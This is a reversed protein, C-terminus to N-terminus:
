FVIAVTRPDSGAVLYLDGAALGGAAAAANNAYAPLAKINFHTVGSSNSVKFIMGVAAIYLSIYTGTAGFVNGSPDSLTCAVPTLTGAYGALTSIGYVNVYGNALITYSTAGTAKLGNTPDLNITATGSTVTITGDTLSVGTSDAKFPANAFTTGGARLTSGWVGQGTWGTYAVANQVGASGTLTLTTAGGVSQVTYVVAGIKIPLGTMATVFQDGSVWTVTTGNTNVVGTRKGDMGIFANQAGSANYVAFVGPKGGGGGVSIGNADLKDTSVSSVRLKAGDAMGSASGIAISARPTAATINNRRGSTDFSVLIVDWTEVTDPPTVTVVAPSAKASAELPAVTSGNDRWMEVGGWTPDAPPTFPATIIAPYTGDVANDPYAVTATVGTVNSTYEVGAAGSSYSVNFTASPTVGAVLSNEVGLISKTPLWATYSDTTGKPPVDRWVSLYATTGKPLETIRERVGGKELYLVYAGTLAFRVNTTPEDWTLSYRWQTTGGDIDQTQVAAAFNLVSPSGEDGAVGTQGSVRIKPSELGSQDNYTSVFFLKGNTPLVLSVQGASLEFDPAGGDHDVRVRFHTYFKKDAPAKWTLLNTTASFALERPPPPRRRTLGVSRALLRTNQDAM